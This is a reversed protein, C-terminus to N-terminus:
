FRSKDVDGCYPGQKVEFLECDELMKFGHGGSALFIFDGEEAIRSELYTKNDDYFNILLKGSKVFLVEQTLTVKREVKNHIHPDIVYGQPRNMYGFQQSFENPTFFALGEKKFNKNIIIAILQDGITIKEIM